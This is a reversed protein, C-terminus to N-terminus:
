LVDRIAERLTEDELTEVDLVELVGPFRLADRVTHAPLAALIDPFSKHVSESLAELELRFQRQPEKRHAPYGAGREVSFLREVIFRVNENGAWGYGQALALSICNGGNIQTFLWADLPTMIHGCFVNPYQMASNLFGQGTGCGGIVFDVRNANLLLGTLFGTHIYSLEPDGGKEKMGVNYITHGTGELAAIIDKNKDGASTENIVAIRM